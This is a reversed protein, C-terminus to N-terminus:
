NWGTYVYLNFRNERTVAAIIGYRRVFVTRARAARVSDLRLTDKISRISDFVVALVVSVVEVSVQSASSM